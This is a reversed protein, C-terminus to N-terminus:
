SLREEILGAIRIAENYGTGEEYMFVARILNNGKAYKLVIVERGSLWTPTGYLYSSIDGVNATGCEINANNARGEINGSRLAEDCGDLQNVIFEEIGEDTDFEDITILFSNEEADDTWFFEQGVNRNDKPLSYKYKHKLSEYDDNINYNEYKLIGYYGYSKLHLEPVDGPEILLGPLDASYSQIAPTKAPTSVPNQNKVPRSTEVASQTQVSTPEQTANATSSNTEIIKKQGICGASLIIGALILLIFGGTKVLSGLSRKKGENGNLHAKM